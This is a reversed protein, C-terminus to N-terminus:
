NSPTPDSQTWKTRRGINPRNYWSRITSSSHPATPPILIPMPFRLVLLFGAGTDSQGVRAAATPLVAEEHPLDTEYSIRLIHLLHGNLPIHSFVVLVWLVAEM